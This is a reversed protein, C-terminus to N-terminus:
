ELIFTDFWVLAEDVSDFARGPVAPKKTKLYFNTLMKLSSSHPIFADAIVRFVRSPDASMSLTKPHFQVQVQEEHDLIFFYRDKMIKDCTDYVLRVHDPMIMMNRVYVVHVITETRKEIQCFDLDIITTNSKVM